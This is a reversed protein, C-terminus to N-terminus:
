KTSPRPPAWNARPPATSRSRSSRGRSPSSGSASTSAAASGACGYPAARGHGFRAPALAARTAPAFTTRRPPSGASKTSRPPRESTGSRSGSSLQSLGASAAKTSSTRLLPGFFRRATSRKSPSGTVSLSAIGRSTSAPKRAPGRRATRRGQRALLDAAAQSWDDADSFRDPTGSPGPRRGDVRQEVMKCGDSELSSGADVAVVVVAALHDLEDLPLDPGVAVVFLERRDRTENM